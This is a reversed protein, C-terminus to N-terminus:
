SAAFGHKGRILRMVEALPKKEVTYLMRIDDKIPEWNKTMISVSGLM